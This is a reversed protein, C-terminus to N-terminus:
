RILYNGRYAKEMWDLLRDFLVSNANHFKISHSSDTFFLTDYNRVGAVTLDDILNLTHQIHVNDDATGHVLLFRTVNALATMNHVKSIEYGLPNKQPLNMYRETYISNYLRWDTVPAVAMGYNFTNGADKELTKLTLYGGYSWGWISIKSKDVYPMGAYLKAAAIQDRAEYDGLREYIVTSFDDGKFGTGRGDVVVIIANLRAAVVQHFSVSFTKIATQSGPGGYTYFFVPYHNKLSPDFDPPLCEYSNVTIKRGHEDEGLDLEHFKPYSISYRQLNAAVAKNEKLYYLTEGIVNGTVTDDPNSRLDILKQYPVNPGLYTLLAFRGGASFKASYVGDKSTDTVEKVELPNDLQVYYLHREVSSKKTSIFYVRNLDPDFGIPGSTVDWDGNTLLLPTPSRVPSYYVLHDRGNVTTVDVYGDYKRSRKPDKPIRMVYSNPDWSSYSGLNLRRPTTFVDESVDQIIMSLNASTRDVSKVLFDRDSVWKVELVISTDNDFSMQKTTGTAVEYFCLSSVPINNGSKPYKINITEPYQGADGKKYLNIPYTEVSSEDSKLFSIYDGKPSWWLAISNGFIEEEYVWDPRGNFIEESGDSTVAKVQGDEVTYLYVNNDKVYAIRESDPSWVALSIDDGIFNVNGAVDLIYYSGFSSHRWNKVKNTVVISRVLNPANSFDEITYNNEKYTFANGNSLVRAFSEDFASKLTYADDIYTIFLGKDNFVQDESKVWNIEQYTPAFTGNRVAEYTVKFLGNSAVAKYSPTGRFRATLEGKLPLTNILLFSGWVLAVLLLGIKSVSQVLRNNYDKYEDDVQEFDHLSYKLVESM